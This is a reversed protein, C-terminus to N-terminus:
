VSFRSARKGGLARLYDPSATSLVFLQDRRLEPSLRLSQSAHRRSSVNRARGFAAGLRRNRDSNDDTFRCSNIEEPQQANETSVCFALWIRRPGAAQQVRSKPPIGQSLSKGEKM